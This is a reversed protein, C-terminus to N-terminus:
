NTPIITLSDSECVFKYYKTPKDIPRFALKNNMYLNLRYIPVSNMLKTKFTIVDNNYVLTDYLPVYLEESKVIRPEKANNKLFIIYEINEDDSESYDYEEYFENDEPLYKSRIKYDHEQENDSDFEDLDEQEEQEQLKKITKHHLSNTKIRGFSINSCDGPVLEYQIKECIIDNTKTIILEYYSNNFEFYINGLTDFLIEIKNNDILLDM